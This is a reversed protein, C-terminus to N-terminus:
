LNDLTIKASVGIQDLNNQIVLPANSFREAAILEDDTDSVLYYGYIDQAAQDMDSTFNQLGAVAQSPTTGSLTWDGSALPVAAYGSFTAETYAGVVDTQAPTIDNKYLKLILTRVTYGSKGVTFALGREEGKNTVVGAM